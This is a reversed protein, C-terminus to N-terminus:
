RVRGGGLSGGFGRLLVQSDKWLVGYCGFSLFYRGVWYFEMKFCVILGVKM